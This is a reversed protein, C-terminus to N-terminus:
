ERKLGAARIKNLFNVLGHSGFFIGLGIIFETIVGGSGLIIRTTFIGNMSYMNTLASVLKPVSNGIFYLGLVSFCVRQIDSAGLGSGEFAYQIFYTYL